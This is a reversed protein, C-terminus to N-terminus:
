RLRPEGGSGESPAEVIAVGIPPSFHFLSEAIPPNFEWNAFRYELEIGGPQRVLVSALEGTNGDVELLIELFDGEPSEGTDWGEARGPNSKGRPICRLVPHGPSRRFDNPLLEIRGCLRSLNAKGTLLALPTRWDTSEKVRARTVTRDSPVFFWVFKGDSLFLKKEPAEYEWRMRGPRNFFVHGSEVEATRRGESYRELFTAGLTQVGKYRAEIKRVLVHVDDTGPGLGIWAMSALIVLIM